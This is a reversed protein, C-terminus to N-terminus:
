QYIIPYPLHEFGTKGVFILPRGARAPDERRLLPAKAYALAKKNRLLHAQECIRLFLFLGERAAHYPEKAETGGVWHIM